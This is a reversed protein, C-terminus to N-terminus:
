NIGPIPPPYFDTQFFDKVRSKGQNKKEKAIYVLKSFKWSFSLRHSYLIQLWFSNNQIEFFMQLTFQLYIHLLLIQIEIVCMIKGM